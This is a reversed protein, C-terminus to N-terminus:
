VQPKKTKMFEHTMIQWFIVSIDNHILTPRDPNFGGRDNNGFNSLDKFSSTDIDDKFSDPSLRIIPTNRAGSILDL